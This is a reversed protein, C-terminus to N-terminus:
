SRRSDLRLASRRMARSSRRLSAATRLLADKRSLHLGVTSYVAGVTRGMAAPRRKILEALDPLAHPCVVGPGVVTTKPARIVGSKCDNATQNAM